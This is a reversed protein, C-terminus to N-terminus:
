IYFHTLRQYESEILPRLEMFSCEIRHLREPVEQTDGQLLRDYVEQMERTLGTLGVMSFNPKVKHVQAKIVDWDKRSIAQRIKTWEKDITDLFIQFLGCAYSANEGYLKNLYPVDLRQDFQFGGSAGEEDEESDEGAYKDLLSRISTRLDTGPICEYVGLDLEPLGSQVVPEEMNLLLPTAEWPGGEKRLSQIFSRFWADPRSWSLVILDYYNQEKFLNGATEPTKEQVQLMSDKLIGRILDLLSEGQEGIYLLNGNIYKMIYKHKEQPGAEFYCM